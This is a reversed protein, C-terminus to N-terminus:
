NVLPQIRELSHCFDQQSHLEPLCIFGAIKLLRGDSPFDGGPPYADGIISNIMEAM